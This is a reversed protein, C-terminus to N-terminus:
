NFFFIFGQSVRNFFRTLLLLLEDENENNNGSVLCSLTTITERDIWSQLESEIAVATKTISHPASVLSNSIPNPIYLHPNM